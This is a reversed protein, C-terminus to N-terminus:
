FVYIYEMRDSLCLCVCLCVCVRLCVCVCVYINRVNLHLINTALILHIISLATLPSGVKPRSLRCEENRNQCDTTWM